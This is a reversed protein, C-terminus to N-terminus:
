YMDDENNLADYYAERIANVSFSLQSVDQKNLGLYTLFSNDNEEEHQTFLDQKIIENLDHNVLIDLLESIVEVTEKLRDMTTIENVLDVNIQTCVSRINTVIMQLTNQTLLRKMKDRPPLATPIAKWYMDIIDCADDLQNLIIEISVRWNFPDIFANSADIEKISEDFDYSVGAYSELWTYIEDFM